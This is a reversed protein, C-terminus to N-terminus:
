HTRNYMNSPTLPIQTPFFKIQTTQLQSYVSSNFVVENSYNSTALACKLQFFILKLPKINSVYIFQSPGSKLPQLHLPVISKFHTCFYMQTSSSEIPTSFCMLTSSPMIYIIRTHLHMQTSFSKTKLSKLSYLFM